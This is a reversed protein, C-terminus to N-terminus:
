IIIRLVGEKFFIQKRKSEMAFVPELYVEIRTIARGGKILNGKFIKLKHWNLIRYETVPFDSEPEISHGVATKGVRRKKGKENLL